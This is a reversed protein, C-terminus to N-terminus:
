FVEAPDATRVRRLAMAGSACCMTITLALVTAVLGVSMRMPLQTADETLRYLWMSLAFGPTFGLVGLLTAEQFVM